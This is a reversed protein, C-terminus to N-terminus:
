IIEKLDQTLSLVLGIILPFVGMFGADLINLKFQAEISCMLFIIFLALLTRM